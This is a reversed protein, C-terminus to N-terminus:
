RYDRLPGARTKWHEQYDARVKEFIEECNERAKPGEAEVEVDGFKIKVRNKPQEKPKSTM